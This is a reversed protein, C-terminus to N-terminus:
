VAAATAAGPGSGAAGQEGDHLNQDDCAASLKLDYHGGSQFLPPYAIDVNDPKLKVGIQPPNLIVEETMEAALMM